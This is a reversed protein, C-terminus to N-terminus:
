FAANHVSLSLQGPLAGNAESSTILGTSTAAIPLIVEGTSTVFQMQLGDDPSTGPGSLALLLSRSVVDTLDFRFLALQSHESSTWVQIDYQGPHFNTYEGVDGYVMDTGLFGIVDQNDDPNLLRLDVSGLDRAHHVTYFVFGDTTHKLLKPRQVTM